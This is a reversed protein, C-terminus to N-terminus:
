KYAKISCYDICDYHKGRAMYLSNGNVKFLPIGAADFKNVTKQTVSFGKLYTAIVITCGDKLAQMIADYRKQADM